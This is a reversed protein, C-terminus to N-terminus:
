PYTYSSPAGSNTSNRPVHDQVTGFGGVTRLADTIEELVNWIDFTNDRISGIAKRLNTPHTNDTVGGDADPWYISAITEQGYSGSFSFTKNYTTTGGTCAATNGALGECLSVRPINFRNNAQVSSGDTWINVPIMGVATDNFINM